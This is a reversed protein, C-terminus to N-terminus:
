GRTAALDVTSRAEGREVVDRVLGALRATEGVLSATEAATEEAWGRDAVSPLNVEVNRAAARAAAEALLGAVVLDSAANVNSRGALSEAATAIERCAEVTRLPVEAAHRAAAALASQRTATEAETARPLKLAAAFGAYADADEDALALARDALERARVVATRHLEAHQVYRPRDSLAAVMAVLGAAISAAVAAASGGGPVPESSALADVFSRLSQDAFRSSPM